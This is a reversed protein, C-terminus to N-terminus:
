FLLLLQVVIFEKGSFKKMVGVVLMRKLFNQNAWALYNCQQL